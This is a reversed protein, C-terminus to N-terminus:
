VRSIADTYVNVRMGISEGCGTLEGARGTALGTKTTTSAGQCTGLPDGISRSGTSDAV